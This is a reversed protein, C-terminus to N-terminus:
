DDEAELKKREVYVGFGSGLGFGLLAYAIAHIEGNFGACGAAILLAIGGLVSVVRIVNEDNM